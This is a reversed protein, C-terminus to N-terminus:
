LSNAVLTEFTISSKGEIIQFNVKRVYFLFAEYNILHAQLFM